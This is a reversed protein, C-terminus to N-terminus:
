PRGSFPTAMFHDLAALWTTLIMPAALFLLFLGAFTIVPAGVFAVMLQPMAKNIAGLALNYLVSVIVFPAALTFALEFAHRVQDLGWESVVAGDPLRGMPLLAYSVIVLEAAKVHLGTMVALALGAIILTYGLAPLPDAVAGGLIQSLSTSQAAISGATQLALVFMRIGLGLILGAVIETLILWTVTDFTRSVEMAPVAPAIVFVFAVAIGLKIRVPVSQEGFAPMLSVLAAVRLFVTFGHWLADNIM